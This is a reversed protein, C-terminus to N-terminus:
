ISCLELTQVGISPGVTAIFEHRPFDEPTLMLPRSKLLCPAKEQTDLVLGMSCSIRQPIAVPM